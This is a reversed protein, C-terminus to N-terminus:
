VLTEFWLNEDTGTRVNPAFFRTNAAQRSVIQPLDHSSNPFFVQGIPDSSVIAHCSCFGTFSSNTFTQHGILTTM